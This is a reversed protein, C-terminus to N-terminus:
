HGFMSLDIIRLYLWLARDYCGMIKCLVSLISSHEKFIRLLQTRCQPYEIRIRPHTLLAISSKKSNYSRHTHIPKLYRSILWHAIHQPYIWIIQFPVWSGVGYSRFIHFLRFLKLRLLLFIFVGRCFLRIFWTFGCLSM